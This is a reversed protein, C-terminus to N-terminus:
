KFFRKIEEKTSIADKNETFESRFSQLRSNFKDLTSNNGTSKGCQIEFKGFNISRVFEYM